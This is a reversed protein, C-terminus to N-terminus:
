MSMEMLGELADIKTIKCDKVIDGIKPYSIEDPKFKLIARASSFDSLICRVFGVQPVSNVMVDFKCNRDREILEKLYKLTWYTNSHRGAAKLIADRSQIQWVLRDVEDKTFCFPLGLLYRHLQLHNIMDPFRRLPSTVTLYQPAGIMEHSYPYGSYYSSNLLTAMMNIDRVSLPKDGQMKMKMLDYEAKAQIGLKLSKYCRFVGPIKNKRFFEGSLTNALIMMESVLVTSPTEVQDKFSVQQSVGSQSPSLEVQVRNFSDGFLVAHQVKVRYDRLERAIAHLSKLDEQVDTLKEGKKSKSAQELISDVTEYTVKPFNSVLGLRVQFTNSLLRFGEKRSWKAGVSFSLTKTKQNQKGLDAAKCFSQPLMPVVLDPLYTTFSKKLAIKLIDNNIGKTTERSEPFFSAPDAIHVHLIYNDNEHREISIGDDIEHAMDSDICYVKMNGFDHRESSDDAIVPMALQYIQEEANAKTSSPPVGLDLNYHLPNLSKQVPDLEELLQHCIDRTIDEEKFRKINRFIKSVIFIGTADKHFNGAAYDQLLKIIEPFEEVAVTNKGADVLQAFRTVADYNKAKLNQLVRGYYLYQSSLPMVTVSVPSLLARNTHVEGWLHSQQQNEIAWFTALLTSSNIKTATKSMCSKILSEVYVAGTNSASALQIDLQEAMNVLDFFPVQWPGRGDQLHRHLLEMKKLICPLAEWAKKSIEHSIPSTIQQRPIVPLIFTQSAKNKVYGVTEFGHKPEQILLPADVTVNSLSHPIRISVMSRTTFIMTGDVTTFTYRPDRTSAPIDICMCLESPHSKILVLDGVQLPRSMLDAVDFDFSENRDAGMDEVSANILFKSFIPKEKSIWNREFWTKSPNLYRARYRSHFEQRIQALDKVELGPELDKTRSLFNANIKDIDTQTLQPPPDVMARIPSSLVNNAQKGLTQGRKVPKKAQRLCLGTVHLRRAFIQSM